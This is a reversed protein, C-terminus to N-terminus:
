FKYEGTLHDRPAPIAFGGQDYVADPIVRDFLNKVNLPAPGTKNTLIAHRGLATPPHRTPRSSSNVPQERQCGDARLRLTQGSAAASRGAASRTTSWASPHPPRRARREAELASSAPARPSKELIEADMLALSFVEWNRPSAVPSRAGSRRDPAEQTLSQPRHVSTPTPAGWEKDARYLAARLALDGEM